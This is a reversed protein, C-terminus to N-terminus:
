ALTTHQVSRVICAAQPRSASLQASPLISKCCLALDVSAAGLSRTCHGPLLGLTQVASQVAEVGSSDWNSLEHDCAACCPYLPAAASTCLPDAFRLSHAQLAAHLPQHVLCAIKAQTNPSQDHSGLKHRVCARPPSTVSLWTTSSNWCAPATCFPLTPTSARASRRCCCTCCCPRSFIMFLHGLPPERRGDEHCVQQAHNTRSSRLSVASIPPALQLQTLVLAARALM